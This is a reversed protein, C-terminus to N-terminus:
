ILWRVHLQFSFPVTKLRQDRQVPVWVARQIYKILLLMRQRHTGRRYHDNTGRHQVSSWWEKRLLSFLNWIIIRNYVGFVFEDVAEYSCEEGRCLESGFAGDDSQNTWHHSHGNENRWLDSISIVTNYTYRSLSSVYASISIQGQLQFRITRPAM